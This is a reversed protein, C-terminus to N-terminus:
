SAARAPTVFGLVLAAVAAVVILLRRAHASLIAPDYVHLDDHM